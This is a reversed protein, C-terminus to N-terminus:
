KVKEPEWIMYLDCDPCLAQRHTKNMKEAWEHWALYSTPCPTHASVNRCVTVLGSKRTLPM